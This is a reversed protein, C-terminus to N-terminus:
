GCNRCRCAASPWHDALGALAQPEQAWGHLLLLLQEPRGQAPRHEIALHMGTITAQGAPDM